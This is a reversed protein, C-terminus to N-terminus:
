TFLFNPPRKVLKPPRKILVRYYIFGFITSSYYTCIIECEFNQYEQDNPNGQTIVPTDSKKEEV